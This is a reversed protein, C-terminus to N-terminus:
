RSNAMGPRWVPKAAGKHCGVCARREARATGGATTLATTRDILTDPRDAEHCTGCGLRLTMGHVRHFHGKIPDLTQVMADRATRASVEGQALGASTWIGFIGIIVAIARVVRILLRRLFLPSADRAFLGANGVRRHVMGARAAAFRPKIQVAM